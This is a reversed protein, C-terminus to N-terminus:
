GGPQQPTLQCRAFAAMDGVWLKLRGIEGGAAQLGQEAVSVKLPTPLGDAGMVYMEGDTAIGAGAAATHVCLRVVRCARCPMPCFRPWPPLPAFTDALASM